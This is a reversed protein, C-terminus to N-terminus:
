DEFRFAEEVDKIYKNIHKYGKKTLLFSVTLKKGWKVMILDMRHRYKDQYVAKKDEIPYTIVYQANFIEKSKQSPWITIIKKLEEMQEDTTEKFASGMDLSNRIQSFVNEPLKDVSKDITTETGACDIFLICEQDEHIWKSARTGFVTRLLETPNAPPMKLYFEGTAFYEKPLKYNLGITKTAMELKSKNHTSGDTVPDIGQGYAGITLTIIWALLLLKKM